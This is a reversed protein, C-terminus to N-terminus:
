TRTSTWRGSRGPGSSRRHPRRVSVTWSTDSDKRPRVPPCDTRRPVRPAAAATAGASSRSSAIEAPLDAHGRVRHQERPVQLRGAPPTAARSSSRRRRRRSRCSPSPGARAPHRQPRSRRGARHRRGPRPRRARPRARPSTRRARASTRRRTSSRRGGPGPRARGPRPGALPVRAPEGLAVRDTRRTSAGPRDGGEGGRDLHGGVPDGGLRQGVDGPVGVGGSGTAGRARLRGATDLDRSSPTPSGPVQARADAQGRHALARGLEAARERDPRAGAAAGPDRARKGQPGRHGRSGRRQDGVVMRHEPVPQAASSAASAPPRPPRRPPRGAALATAQRASSCGSTTTISRCM